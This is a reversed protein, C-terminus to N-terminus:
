WDLDNVFNVIEAVKKKKLILKCGSIEISHSYYFAVSTTILSHRLNMFPLVFPGFCFPIYAYVAPGCRHYISKNTNIITDTM